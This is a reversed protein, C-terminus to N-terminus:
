WAKFTGPVAKGKSIGDLSDLLEKIEDSWLEPTDSSGVLSRAANSYRAAIRFPAAQAEEGMRELAFARSSQVHPNNPYKEALAEFTSLTDADNGGEQALRAELFIKWDDLSMDSM